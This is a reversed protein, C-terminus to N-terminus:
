LKASVGFVRECWMRAVKKNERPSRTVRTQKMWETEEVLAGDFQIKKLYAAVKHFDVDGGDEMTQDTIKDHQTRMHIAGLRGNDGAKYLLPFPDTGAQWSWDLDLCMSVLAPDTNHLVGLWEKAGYRMPGEHNHVCLKMGRDQAERGIRDLGRNQARADEDSLPGRDGFPDFFFDPSKLPRSRELVEITGAITKEGARAPYLAGAHWVHNVALGYKSLLALIDAIPKAMVTWSLMEMRRYGAYQVDAFASNWQEETWVMGGTPAPQAPQPDPPHPQLPDPTSAIYRYPTSFLQVWYYMNCVIRPAYKKQGCMANGALALTGALLERRSSPLSFDMEKDAVELPM